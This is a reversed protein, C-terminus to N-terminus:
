NWMRLDEKRLNGSLFEETRKMLETQSATMEFEPARTGTHMLRLYQRLDEAADGNRGLGLRAHARILYFRPPAEEDRLVGVALEIQKEATAFDHAMLAHYAKAALLLIQIDAPLNEFRVVGRPFLYAFAMVAIAFTVISYHFSDAAM